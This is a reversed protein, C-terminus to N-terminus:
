FDGKIEGTCDQIEYTTFQKMTHELIHSGYFWLM